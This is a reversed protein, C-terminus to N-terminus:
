DNNISIFKNKVKYQNVNLLWTSNEGNKEILSFGLEKYLDSVINNKRSKFYYGIIEVVNRKKCIDVLEDFIAFEMQRKLVRCSMFFLDIHLTRGNLRGVIGSILGNDGYKDSLRGYLKIYDNCEKISKIEDVTYRKTTLNFQNTKNTLQTIRDLYISSFPKIEAVMDLAELFDDYSKFASQEQSRKRNMRYYLTRNMDEQSLSVQEFYGNRDLHEVFHIVDDGVNPISVDPIQSSVLDREAPNDDIFVMSDTGINLEKAIDLINQFKPNWNARFSSFDDLNLVSDPHKFGEQANHLDNKSNVSLTVGRQKLEKVYKQFATFSESVATETGICINNLGDDGIVGGWCTNDLDLVLCKKSQGFIANLIKELNFVLEPISEMSLAYKAQYWLSKDFWVRLGLYSSLYNIDNIYLNDIERSYKSFEMNIMNIFYTKGHIDSCDLNGLARDLPLDFNNQIIACDYRRLSNWIHKYKEMEASFLDNVQSECYNMEPFSLINMSTTHIYIVDPKFEDLENNQFVSDEYYRGYGSEYFSPKIGRNLLFIELINKIESTTSGGLIAINKNILNSNKLLEKKISKKKRLILNVDLPHSFIKM